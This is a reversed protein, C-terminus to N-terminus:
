ETFKAHGGGFIQSLKFLRESALLFGGMLIMLISAYSAALTVDLLTNLRTEIVRYIMVDRSGGLIEPTVFAGATLLFMFLWVGMVSPLLQPLVIHWFIRFASAGLMAAVELQKPNLGRLTTWLYFFGIPYFAHVLGIMMGARNFLLKDFPIQGGTIWSFSGESQLTMIWGFTRVITPTLLPVLAVFLFIRQYRPSFQRILLAGALSLVVTFSANMAAIILTNVLVKWYVTTSFIEHYGRLTPSGLPFDVSQLLILLFFGFLFGLFGFFPIGWGWGRKGIRSAMSGM